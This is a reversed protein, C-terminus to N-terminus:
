EGKYEACQLAMRKDKESERCIKCGEDMLDYKGFDKCLVKNTELQEPTLTNDPVFEEETSETNDDQVVKDTTIESVVQSLQKTDPTEGVNEAENSNQQRLRQELYDTVDTADDDSVQATQPKQREEIPVLFKPIIMKPWWMSINKYRADTSKKAAGLVQVKSDKGAGASLVLAKDAFVQLNAMKGKKDLDDLSVGSDTMEFKAYSRGKEFLPGYTILGEILRWDNDNESLRDLIQSVKTVDMKDKLFENMSPVEVDTKQADNCREDISVRVAGTDGIDKYATAQFVVNQETEILKVKKVNLRYAIGTVFRPQSKVGTKTNELVGIGFMSASEYETGAINKKNEDKELLFREQYNEKNFYVNYVPKNMMRSLFSKVNNIVSEQAYFNDRDYNKLTEALKGDTKEWTQNYINELEQRTSLGRTEASKVLSEWVPVLENSLGLNNEVNEDKPM